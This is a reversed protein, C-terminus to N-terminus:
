RRTLILDGDDRTLKLDKRESAFRNVANSFWAKSARAKPIILSEGSKLEASAHDLAHIPWGLYKRAKSATILETRIGHDLDQGAAIFHTQLLELRKNGRGDDAFTMTGISGPNKDAPGGPMLESRAKDFLGLDPLQPFAIYAQRNKARRTGTQVTLVKRSRLFGHGDVSARDLEHQWAKEVVTRPITKPMHRLM